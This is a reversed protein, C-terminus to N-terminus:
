VAVTINNHRFADYERETMEARVRDDDVCPAVEYPECGECDGCCHEDCSDKDCGLGLKDFREKTMKM